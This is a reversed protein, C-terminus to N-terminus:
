QYTDIVRESNEKSNIERITITCYRKGIACKPNL